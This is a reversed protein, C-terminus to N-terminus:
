KIMNEFEDENIIKVGLKQAKKLKSGPSNGVILYDTKKSVSSSANGGHEKIISEIEGRTYKELTGTVVFSKKLIFKSKELNINELKKMNINADKFKNLINKTKENNFFTYISDAMIPGIEQVAELEEKTTNTLIDISNFRDALTTAAKSGVHDIGLACLVHSLDRSKSEEINKLLNKSSKEGMRELSILDDLKLYYLDAYDKLLGKDVLQGIVAPGLGEIDMANRSAFFEIKRKAQASCFPNSCRIYVETNKKHVPSKCVPCQTPITVSLENENRKEKIVNAVQPIIDGAKQITVFDNIRIDKRQIEEFNHLTARSVTSGALSVPKLSAVPTLTGSRGVQVSVGTLQTISQEPHFKYSIMWRPSKNTSGLSKRLNQMNVKVVMGDVMYDLGSRQSEWENCTMIVEDINQCLKYHPNVSFGLKKILNLTEIHTIPELGYHQVIEYAFLRLHRKATIRPDLLKLSGAAANRPNAFRPANQEEREINLRQFDKIPLYIEGRIEIFDTFEKQTFSTFNKTDFSIDKFETIRLPIERITKLNTTVDDGQYGDGRTVGRNFYGNKYWLSIAIGDIKLEVVYEVSVSSNDIMKYIRKDFDRLEKESYTNDISLMPAKHKINNFASIPEGGVRQTPSDPTTLNPYRNELLKLEDILLDYEYDTLTPDNDVYYKHDHNRIQTRLEEAKKKLEDYKAHVM